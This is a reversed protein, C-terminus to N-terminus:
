QARRKRPQWASRSPSKHGHTRRVTVASAPHAGGVPHADAGPKKKRDPYHPETNSILSLNGHTAKQLLLFPGVGASGLPVPRNTAMPMHGGPSKPPPGKSGPRNILTPWRPLFICGLEPVAVLARGLSWPMVCAPHSCNVDGMHRRHIQCITWRFCSNASRAGSESSGVM